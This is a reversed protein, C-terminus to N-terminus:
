WDIIINQNKEVHTPATRSLRSHSLTVLPFYHTGLSLVLFAWARSEAQWSSLYLTDGILFENGNELEDLAKNVAAQCPPEWEAEAGACWCRRYYLGQKEWGRFGCGKGKAHLYSMWEAGSEGDLSFFYWWHRQNSAKKERFCLIRYNWIKKIWFVREQREKPGKEHYHQQCLKPCGPYVVCIFGLLLGNCSRWKALQKQSFTLRKLPKKTGAPFRRKVPAAPPRKQANQGFSRSGLDRINALSLWFHQFAFTLTKKELISM